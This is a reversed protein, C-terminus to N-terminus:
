ADHRAGLERMQLTAIRRTVLSDIGCYILAEKRLHPSQMALELQNVANADKEHEGKAKGKLYPELLDDYGVLGFRVYAQFKLGKTNPRNDQVHAGLQVDWRGGRVAYGGLVKVWTSDFKGGAAIKGIRSDALIPKLERLDPYAVVYSVDETPAFSIALIKHRTTDYPKLGTTELDWSLLPAGRVAEVLERTSDLIVVRKREDDFAPLPRDARDCARLLDATFVTDCARAEEKLVYWPDFVPCLWAKLERDPICYGRWRAIGKLDKSWRAGIVSRVPDGGALIVVAPKHDLIERLVHNRCLTIEESDPPRTSLKGQKTESTPRCNVSSYSLCDRDLNIGASNWLVKRLMQGAPGTWPRGSRDEEEGPAEGIVMIRRAFEGYPRMRPNKLAGQKFLGCKRCADAGPLLTDKLTPAGFFGFQQM